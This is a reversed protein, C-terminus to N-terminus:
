KTKAYQCIHRLKSHANWTKRKTPLIQQKGSGGSKITCYPIENPRTFPVDILFPSYQQLVMNIAKESLIVKMVHHQKKGPNWTSIAVHAPLCSALPGSAFFNHMRIELYLACVPLTSLIGPSHALSMCLQQEQGRPTAM